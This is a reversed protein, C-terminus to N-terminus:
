GLNTRDGACSFFRIQARHCYRPEHKLGEKKDTSELSYSAMLDIEDGIQLHESGYVRNWPIAFATRGPPVFRTIAPRDGVATASPAAETAQQQVTSVFKHDPHFEKAPGTPCKRLALRRQRRSRVLLDM